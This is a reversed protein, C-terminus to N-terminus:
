TAPRKTQNRIPVYDKNLPFEIRAVTREGNRYVRFNGPDFGLDKMLLVIMALGLGRGETEDGYHLSFEVINKIDSTSALKSRIRREEEELLISSNEVFVLLRDENLDIRVDVNFEMEEMAERYEEEDISNYDRMFAEIGPRYSSPDSLDYGNKEFYIRKLNAKVANGVLEMLVFHLTHALGEIHLHEEVGHSWDKLLDRVFSDLVLISVHKKIPDVMM